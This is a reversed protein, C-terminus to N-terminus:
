RERCFFLLSTWLYNVCQHTDPSSFILPAKQRQGFVTPEDSPTVVVKPRLLNRLHQHINHINNYMSYRIEASAARKRWMSTNFVSIQCSDVHILWGFSRQHTHTYVGLICVTTHIYLVTRYVMSPYVWRLKHFWLWDNSNNLDVLISPTYKIKQDANTNCSQLWHASDTRRQGAVGSYHTVLINYCENLLFFFFVLGDARKLWNFWLSMWSVPSRETRTYSPYIVRCRNHPRGCLTIAQLFMRWPTDMVLTNVLVNYDLEYGAGPRM